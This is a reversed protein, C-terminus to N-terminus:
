CSDDKRATEWKLLHRAHSQCLAHASQAGLSSKVYEGTGFLEFGFALRDDMQLDALGVKVSRLMDDIGRTFSEVRAPGMIPGARTIRLKALHDGVVDLLAPAKRYRWIFYYDYRTGFRDDVPTDGSQNVGAVLDDIGVWAERDILRHYVEAPALRHRNRQALLNFKAEVRM